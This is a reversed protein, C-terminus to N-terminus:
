KKDFTLWGKGDLEIGRRGFIYDMAPSIDTGGGKEDFSRPLQAEVYEGAKLKGMDWYANFSRDWWETQPNCKRERYVVDEPKLNKHILYRILSEDSFIQRIQAINEKDDFQRVGVCSHVLAIFSWGLPNILKTFVEGSGMMNSAPFKGENAGEYVEGGVALLKGHVYDKFLWEWYPRQLPISDMDHILCITDSGMQAAIFYRVVKSLNASPIGGIEPFHFFKDVGDYEFPSKEEDGVYALAIKCEPFFKKWATVVLPLYKYYDPHNNVGLCLWFPKIM